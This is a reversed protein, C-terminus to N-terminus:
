CPGPCSIGTDQYGWGCHQNTFVDAYRLLKHWTCGSSGGPGCPMCHKVSTDYCVVCVCPTSSFAQVNESPAITSIAVITVGTAVGKIFSRRSLREQTM